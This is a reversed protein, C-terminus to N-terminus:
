RENLNSVTFSLAEPSTLLMEVSYMADGVSVYPIHLTQAEISYDAIMSNAAYYAALDAINQTTLPGVIAGMISDAREGSKYKELQAVLYSEKQGAINPFEESSSLGYTGHCFSCQTSLERGNERNGEAYVSNMGVLSFALLNIIKKM